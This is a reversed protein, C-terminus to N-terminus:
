ASCAGGPSGCAPLKGAAAAAAAANRRWSEPLRGSHRRRLVLAEDVLLIRQQWGKQLGLAENPLM